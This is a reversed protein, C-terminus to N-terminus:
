DLVSFPNGAPQPQPAAANPVQAVPAEPQVYQGGQVQQHPAVQPAPQNVPPALPAPQGAAARAFADASDVRNDLREINQNDVLQVGALGCGIGNNGTTYGFFEVHANVICGGFIQSQDTLNEYMSPGTEILVRPRDKEPSGTAIRYRNAFQPTKGGSAPDKFPTKYQLGHVGFAPVTPPRQNPDPFKSAVAAEYMASLANVDDQDLDAPLYFDASYRPDGTQQGPKGSRRAQFLHPFSIVCGRIIASRETLMHVHKM